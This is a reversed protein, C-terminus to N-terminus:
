TTTSQFSLPQITSMTNSNPQISLGLQFHSPSPSIPSHPNTPSTHPQPFVLPHSHTLNISKQNKCLVERMKAWFEVMHCYRCQNDVMLMKRHILDSGERPKPKMEMIQQTRSRVLLWLSMEDGKEGGGGNAGTGGM